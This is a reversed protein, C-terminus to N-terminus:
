GNSSHHNGHLEKTDAPSVSAALRQVAAVLEDQACLTEIGNHMQKLKYSKQAREDGGRMITLWAGAANAHRMQAKVSLQDYPTLAALGARRLADAASLCERVATGDCAILAVPGLRAPPAIGGAQLAMILREVGLAFGVAGTQPGGLSEVLGDYRGGGGLADQAGLATHTVEFITHTYYDLGRALRPEERYAIHQATLAALVADYHMRAGDTLADRITPLAAAQLAARCAPVKCDLVRLVNTAMRRRCDPCLADTLKELASRLQQTYRVRSESDGLTNITVSLGQLGVAEYYRVMLAIVDADALPSYSGFLEVGIQHFQRQRGAQPREYRFMPGLYYFRVVKPQALLKHELCARVVSATGEPRLTLSRGKRDPFTYMEKEVIDTTDGISRAFLETAGFVPTRIEGFGARGFVAHAQAEIWQWLPTATPLLDTTGRIASIM